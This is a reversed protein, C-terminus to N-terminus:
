RPPKDPSGAATRRCRRGWDRWARWQRSQNLDRLPERGYRAFLLCGLPISLTGCTNYADRANCHAKLPLRLRALARAQNEPSPAQKRVSEVDILTVAGAPTVILNGRSFDRVVLGQEALAALLAVCRVLLPHLGRGDCLCQGTLAAALTQGPVYRYWLRSAVLRGNCWQEELDVPAAILGREGATELDPWLPALSRLHRAD